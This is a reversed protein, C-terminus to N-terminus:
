KQALPPPLHPLTKALWRDLRQGADNTGVIFEKMPCTPGKWLISRTIDQWWEVRIRTKKDIGIEGPPGAPRRM